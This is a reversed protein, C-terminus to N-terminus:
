QKIMDFYEKRVEPKLFKGSVKSTITSANVDKIGRCIVCFHKADIMVAVDQTGLVEVLKKHIDETLREQVQPRRSYYDVIRNLKSLGIIKASPIYAVHAIGVINQFHHECMSHVKVDREVLMQNYKMDNPITMIRPFNEPDLGYFIEDVYMKAVRRPTEKLSPDNLDLGLEEMIAKFHKAINAKKQLNKDQSM